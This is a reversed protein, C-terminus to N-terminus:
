QHLWQVENTVQCICHPRPVPKSLNSFTCKSTNVLLLWSLLLELSHSGSVDRLPLWGFLAGLHPCTMLRSLLWPLSHVLRLSLECFCIFSQGPPCGNCRYGVFVHWVCWILKLCMPNRCLERDGLSQPRWLSLSALQLNHHCLHSFWWGFLVMTQRM